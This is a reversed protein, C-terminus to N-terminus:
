PLSPNERAIRVPPFGNVWPVNRGFWAQVEPRKWAFLLPAALPVLVVSTIGLCLLILYWTWAGPRRPMHLGIWALAAVFLGLFLTTIGLVVAIPRDLEMAESPLFFLAIGAAAVLLHFICLLVCYTRFRRVPAPEPNLTEPNLTQPTPLDPPM